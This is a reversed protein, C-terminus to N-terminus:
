KLIYHHLTFFVRHFINCFQQMDLLHFLIGKDCYTFYKIYVLFALLITLSLVLYTKVFMITYLSKLNQHLGQRTFYSHMMKHHVIATAMSNYHDGKLHRIKPPAQNKKKKKSISGIVEHM